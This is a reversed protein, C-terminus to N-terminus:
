QPATVVRYFSQWYTDPRDMFQVVRATPSLPVTVFTSWPLDLSTRREVTYSHNPVAEFAMVLDQNVTFGQVTLHLLSSKLLPDTGARYESLNDMGDGDPDDTALSQDAPQGTAHGFYQMVWADPIGDQDSDTAGSTLVAVDSLINGYTNSILVSYNGANAQTPAPIILSADTAGSINQGNLKWQYSLPSTGRAVVYFAFPGSQAIGSEPQRKIIPASEIRLFASASVACGFPNSVRLSYRGEDAYSVNTLSLASNTAELLDFGDLRWQFYLPASGNAGATYNATSGAPLVTSLPQATITPSIGASPNNDSGATPAAAVWNVPDNGFATGQFRQLSYGTGTGFGDAATPWPAQDRFKIRDVLVRPTFGNVPTSTRNLEITDGDNSLKGSWPGLMPVSAPVGFKQRFVSNANMNLVPDFSVLLLKGAAPMSTGPPFNYSVANRLHWTNTPQAPDWLSVPAGTINLLEIFEDGTNDNTGVDPPHYHIENIVVPGVVPTSNVAGFTTFEMAVCEPGASSEYLGLSTGPDAAEFEISTRYGTLTGYPDSLSLFLKGGRVTDLSFSPDVEPLPNFQSEPVVVFGGPPLITPDPLRFKKPNQVDDSLWSGSLDVTQESQNFLELLQGGYSARPLLENITVDRYAIYNLSGPTESRVFRQLNTSGEPFFGESVGKAQGVFTVADFKTAGDASFIGLSEGGASLKFNAHTPGSTPNSDAQFVVFAGYFGSGIFSLPPISFQTPRNLDDTLCLGGLSVPQPNSNYLEFWDDGNKPDAMWENFRLASPDGLLAAIPPQGPTPLSLVWSQDEPRRSLSFDQAQAGFSVADVLSTGRYLMVKDGDTDIGFGTNLIDSNNTSAPSVPDCRVVLYSGTGLTTDAPFSWEHPGSESPNGRLIFGSLDAPMAGPNHLEVWDCLTGDVNTISRNNALIESLMVKSQNWNTVSRSAEMKLGWVVDSSTANVQHVEVAIVNLGQKLVSGPLTALDDTTADGSSPSGSAWSVNTVVVGLPMRIRQVEEGNVYIVAGDDLRMSANLTFGSLDTTLNLTTRFYYAHGSSLGAPPSRPNTLTTKTLPAIATDSEFALLGPGQPWASDNYNTATWSAGDLNATQNYKWVKDFSMLNLTVNTVTYDGLTAPNGTGPTPVNFFRITPAGNPSRGMSIDRTQPGYLAQDILASQPSFLGISGWEEGLKFNVHGFNTQGDSLLVLFGGAPIFTLPPIPSRTPFAAANDTLYCAGVNVPVPEPNFLEIFDPIVASAALWENISLSDPAATEISTNVSGFSPRMLKLGGSTTRGISLNPLQNGYTISDMLARQNSATDFLYIGGGREELAFGIHNTGSNKDAVLVFYGGAPITTGAPFVYKSPNSPDDTVAMGELQLSTPGPNFLEIMDPTTDDVPIAGENDALIENLWVRRSFTDVRWTRSRTVANDPALESADQYIASDRKGTVEVYHLGDALGALVIPTGISTEASWLGDDLRWKYHTYGSGRPFGAVPIGNGTRLIAVSLTADRSGTIDAPEGSISVGTPIVGGVDRGNPGAGFAPSGSRLSFWNWMIQAEEWSSFQTEAPSPIYQLMPDNTSNNGGPGSWILPMLNNTFTVLTQPASYNRVLQKSDIIINGELYCGAGMTTPSPDLDQLNIVGSDNDQGGANTTRVITNNILTYFNGQKATAAQDCDFFLNRVITVESTSTGDSGGSVASSSDPAGNKHVNLFVNGEIWADTGDLDLLDDGSGIFVNDYCQLIPQALDRNGGTFDIVDNYGSAKGFFCRQIIGRGGSKIGQTGHVLEFQTSPTPFHCDEVLFSAGDLSLYQKTTTLFKTHGLYLMGAAVEICTTGNGQFLAYDIRTEPSGAAGNITLGGWSTTSGPPQTFVIPANATGEALLRGGNAVTFNVGAALYVTTGPEITLTVGPSVTLSSTISYPGAAATWTTDSAITGGAIQLSGDDFWIDASARSFEKANEDLSQVLISNIGPRLAVTSVSWTGQWPVYHAPSGNVLISRTRIADASGSLSINSTTSHPYGSVIPLSNSVTLIQPIQNLVNTRRTSAASKMTDIYTTPVWGGLMQDLLPAINADAFSTEALQKLQAFYKPAIEPHKLLRNLVQLEAAKFVSRNWSPQADGQALITDLDHPLLQFRADIIGRYASYDDGDGTALTTEMNILLSHAAIHRLWQEVNVVQSLSTVYNSDPTNTSLVYTLHILDSWDDETKNSGKDYPGSDSTPGTPSYALRYSAVNTGLYSLDADHILPVTDLYWVGKYLNGDPDQPLHSKAWEGDYPQFCYYSGFQFSDTSGNPTANALNSANVRVQVPAGYANLLSASSLIANGAVQSHVTRTNFDLRSIGALPNDLPISLHLNHPRAARTGAGRNRIGVCYRVDTGSSDIRVLAGNMQADSFQGGSVNDMLNVWSNWEEARVIFRYIPQSGPYSLNDVQYLANAEQTGADDTATPWTRNRGQPDSAEVYFEVVTKDPQAPIRAGFVGDGAVGDGNLGDDFMLASGFAPAGDVRYHVTVNPSIGPAALVRASITVTNTSRPIAPLHRVNLIFPAVHNTAVSNVRGPTGGDLLSSAWNEGYTNSQQSDILELSRGAGDATSAWKWGPWWDSKGPYVDGKRRVAWDGETSFKVNDVTQGVGDQLEIEDGNNRLKGTWNGVVNTVLPHLSEFATRDAAVVLYGGPPIVANTFSFNMGKRLSWGTLDVANTGPNHLEIWERAPNEPVAPPPHFMIETVLVDAKLRTTSSTICFALLSAPLLRKCFHIM